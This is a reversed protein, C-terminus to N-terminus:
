DTLVIELVPGSTEPHSDSAIAHTYGPGEGDLNGTERVFVFSVASGAQNRVFNSLANGTLDIEGSTQSRPIEFQALLVGDAPAPAEDWLDSVSWVEKEASVLGYVLFRNMKPLRSILGHGSHVLNVRLHAEGIESSDVQSLDFGMVVRQDFGNGHSSTKLTLAEPRTWKRTHNNRIFTAARGDTRIRVGHDFREFPAEVKREESSELRDEFMSATAGSSLQTVERSIDHSITVKGSISEFDTQSDGPMSFAAFVGDQSVAQGFETELVFDDSQQSKVVVTGSALTARLPGKIHLRVPAELTVEVGSVFQVRAIGSALRLTGKTLLSGPETSVAREWVADESSVLTAVVRRQAAITWTLASLLVLVAAAALPRFFPQERFEKRSSIPVIKAAESQADVKEDANVNEAERRLGSDVRCARHFLKRADPSDRLASELQAFNEDSIQGIQYEAILRHYHNLESM